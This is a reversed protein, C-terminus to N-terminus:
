GEVPGCGVCEDPHIYLRREGEYICGVPCEGICAKDKVDICPEAILHTM